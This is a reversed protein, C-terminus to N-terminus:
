IQKYPLRITVFTGAENMTKRDVISISTKVKFEKALMALRETTITTALSNKKGNSKVKSQELGVGNDIIKCVLDKDAFSISVSVEQHPQPVPFGHELANEIFPQIMM